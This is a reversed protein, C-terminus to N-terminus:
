EKEFTVEINPGYMMILYRCSRCRTHLIGTRWSRRVQGGCMTCTRKTKDWSIKPKVKFHRHHLEGVIRKPFQIVTGAM